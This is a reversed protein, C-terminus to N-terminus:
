EKPHIHTWENFPDGYTMDAVYDGEGPSPGLLSESRDDTPSERLSEAIVVPVLWAVARLSGAALRGLGRGAAGLVRTTKSM